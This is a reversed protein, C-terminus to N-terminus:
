GRARRGRAWLMLLGTALGLGIPWALGRTLSAPEVARGEREVNRRFFEGRDNARVRALLVDAAERAPGMQAEGDRTVGFSATTESQGARPGLKLRVLAGAEDKLEVDIHDAGISVNWLKFGGSIAGGLSYPAFLAMVEAERGSGIIQEEGAKALSASLMLALCLRRNM